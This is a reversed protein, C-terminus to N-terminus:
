KPTTPREAVGEGLLAVSEDEEFGEDEKGREFRERRGAVRRVSFSTAHGWASVDSLPMALRGYFFM